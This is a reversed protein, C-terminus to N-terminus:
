EDNALNVWHASRVVRSVAGVASDPKAIVSPAASVILIVHGIIAVVIGMYITKFRGFYTDAIWAGALPTCYNWFSNFTTLGTSAQQGLGLAGPQAQAANPFRAAGTPTPAPWQIFNVFVNTCGYYSLREVMEVYAITYVKWPIKDPVRRLSYLEEETPYQDKLPETEETPPPHEEIGYNNKM